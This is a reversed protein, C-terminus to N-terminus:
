RKGEKMAFSHSLSRMLPPHTPRAAASASPLLPPPLPQALARSSFPPGAQAAAVPTAFRRRPLPRGAPAGAPM